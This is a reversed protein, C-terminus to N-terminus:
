SVPKIRGVSGDEHPSLEFIRDPHLGAEETHSVYLIATSSEPLPSGSLEPRRRTAWDASVGSSVGGGTEM